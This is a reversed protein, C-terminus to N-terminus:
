NADPPPLFDDRLIAYLYNDVREGGLVFYGRLRGERTFGLRELVKQSPENDTACRAEIRELKTDLFLEALLQTLANPMLGRRQFSTSLAYGVEALGHDWNTVVLTIWGAPQAGSCVIWQFKEGFGRYIDGVRQRELESRLQATSASGIPQYRRISPENRWQELLRADGPGAPRLTVQDLSRYTEALTM